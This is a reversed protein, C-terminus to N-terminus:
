EEEPWANPNQFLHANERLWKEEKDWWQSAQIKSITNADFRMRIVRAPVGAVISFPPVDKTVVSGMGIVAGDGITIGGKILTNEGIWVDNGISVIEGNKNLAIEDFLNEEVFSVGCQKQKSFFVPSTSVWDVPHKAPVVKVNPSISCFKGVSGYIRCEPGIYSYSGITGDIYTRAGVKTNPGLNKPSKIRASWAVKRKRSFVKIRLINLLYFLFHM